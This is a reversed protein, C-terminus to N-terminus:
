SEIEVEPAAKEEESKEPKLRRPRIEIVKPLRPPAIEIRPASFRLGSGEKIHEQYLEFAKPHNKKLEDASEAQQVEAIEITVRIKTPGMGQPAKELYSYINPHSEKLEDMNSRDYEKSTEVTIGEDPDEVIRTIDRGERVEITTVGNVTTRSKSIGRFGEITSSRVEIRADAPAVIRPPEALKELLRERKPKPADDASTVSWCCVGFVLALFLTLRM